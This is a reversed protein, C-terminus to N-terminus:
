QYSCGFVFLLGSSKNLIIQKSSASTFLLSPHIKKERTIKKKKNVIYNHIKFPPILTTQRKQIINKGKSRRTM